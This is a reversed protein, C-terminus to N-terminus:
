EALKGAADELLGEGLEAAMLEFANGLHQANREGADALCGREDLLIEVGVGRAGVPTRAALRLASIRVDIVVRIDLDAVAVSVSLRRQHHLDEGGNRAPQADIRHEALGGGFSALFDGLLPSAMELACSQEDLAKLLPVVGHAAHELDKHAM